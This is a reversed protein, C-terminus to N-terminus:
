LAGRLENVHIDLRRLERTVEAGDRGREHGNMGNDHAPRKSTILERLEQLQAALDGGGPGLALLLLKRAYENRSLGSRAGGEDLAAAVQATVRFSITESQSAVPM